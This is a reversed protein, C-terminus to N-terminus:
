IDPEDDNDIEKEMQELVSESLNKTNNYGKVFIRLWTKFKLWKKMNPAFFGAIGCMGWVTTEEFSALYTSFLLSLLAILIPFAILERKRGIKFILKSATVGFFALLFPQLVLEIQTIM